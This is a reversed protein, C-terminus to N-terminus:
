LGRDLEAREGHLDRPGGDGSELAPLELGGDVPEGGSVRDDSGGGDVLGADAAQELREDVQEVVVQEDGLRDQERGRSAGGAM